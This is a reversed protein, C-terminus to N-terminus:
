LRGIGGGGKLPSVTLPRLTKNQIKLLGKEGGTALRSTASSKSQTVSEDTKWEGRQLLTTEACGCLGLKRALDHAEDLTLYTARHRLHGFFLM